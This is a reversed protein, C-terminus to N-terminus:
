KKSCRILVSHCIASRFALNSIQLHLNTASHVCIEVGTTKNNIQTNGIQWLGLPILLSLTKAKSFSIEANLVNIQCQPKNLIWIACKKTSNVFDFNGISSILLIFRHTSDNDSDPIPSPQESDLSSM